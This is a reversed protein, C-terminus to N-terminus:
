QEMVRVAGEACLIAIVALSGPDNIRRDHVATMLEQTDLRVFPDDDGDPLRSDDKSPDLRVYMVDGEPVAGWGDVSQADQSVRKVANSYRNERDFYPISFEERRYRSPKFRQLYFRGKGDEILTFHKIM